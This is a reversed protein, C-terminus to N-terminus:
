RATPLPQLRVPAVPGLAHREERDEVEDGRMFTLDAGRGLLEGVKQIVVVGTGSALGIVVELMAGEAGWSHHRYSEDLLFPEPVIEAEVQAVLEDLDLRGSVEYWVVWGERVNQPLPPYDFECVRLMLADAYRSM